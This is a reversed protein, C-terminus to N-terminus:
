AAFSRKGFFKRIRRHRDVRALKALIEQSASNRGRDVALRVLIPWNDGDPQQSLAMALIVRRDPENEYLNRLYEMSDPDRSQGLVAAIGIRLKRAADTDLRKVQRDLSRSHRLAHRKSPSPLRALVSLASTPWKAGNILVAQRQEESLGAFFDRSVNEIYGAYSHGGPMGRAEEFFKLM